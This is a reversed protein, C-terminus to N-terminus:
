DAPAALAREVAEVLTTASFPKALVEGPVERGGMLGATYGSMFVVRIGPVREGVRDAIEPGSLGPLVVDTLLVDPAPMAPLAALLSAGDPFGQVHYGARGLLRQAIDRLAQEDEVVVVRRGNGRAPSPAAPADTTAQDDAAAAVLPLAVKVVTGRGPESYIWTGGGVQHAVAYVSALGLGTGQGPPKTTFFPEFAQRLTEPEMGAGEDTVSLVVHPGPAETRYVRHDEDLEVVETAIHLTGGDPMADRANVALNLVVQELRTPDAEVVCAASTLDLRRDIHEGLTRELLGDARRVLDNVDVRRLVPSDKRAFVLLRDTLDAARETVEVIRLAQGHEASEPPLSGALMDATLRIAALMNNFDHAVGGALQGLSDLREVHELEHQMRQSEAEAQRVATVDRVAVSGGIVEGDGSRIPTVRITWSRGARPGHTPNREIEVVEGALTRRLVEAAEDPPMTLGVEDARQGVLEDVPRGIAAVAAANVSTILRDRDFTVIVDSSSEVVAASIAQAEVARVQATINTSIGVLADISGTEDRLPTKTTLYVRDRLPLVETVPEGRAVVREDQQEALRAAEPDTGVEVARRGIVASEPLGAERLFTANVFVYRGASDKVFVSADIADLVQQLQWRGARAAEESRHAETVDTLTSIVAPRGDWEFPVSRSVVWVARGDPWVLRSRVEVVERRQLARAAGWNEPAVPRGDEDFVEFPTRFPEAGYIQEESMGLIRGAAANAHRVGSEDLVVIGVDLAAVAVAEWGVPAAPVPGGASGGVSM